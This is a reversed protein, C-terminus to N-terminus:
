IKFKDNVIEISNFTEETIINCTALENYYNKPIILNIPEKSECEESSFKEILNKYKGDITYM